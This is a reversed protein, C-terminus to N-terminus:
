ANHRYQDNLEPDPVVPTSSVYQNSAPIRNLTLAFLETRDCGVCFSRAWNGNRYLSNNGATQLSRVSNHWKELMFSEPFQTFCCDFAVLKLLKTKMFDHQQVKQQKCWDHLAIIDNWGFYYVNTKVVM